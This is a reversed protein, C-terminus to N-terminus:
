IPPIVWPISKAVSTEVGGMSRAEHHADLPQLPRRVHPVPFRVRAKPRVPPVAGAAARGYLLPRNGHGSRRRIAISCFSFVVVCSSTSLFLSPCAHLVNRMLSRIGLCAIASDTVRSRLTCVLFLGFVYGM